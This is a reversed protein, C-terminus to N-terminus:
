GAIWAEVALEEDAHVAAADIATRNARRRCCLLLITPVECCRGGCRLGAIKRAQTAAGFARWSCRCPESRGCRNGTRQPQDLLAPQIVVSNLTKGIAQANARAM